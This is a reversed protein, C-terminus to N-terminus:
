SAAEETGFARRYAEGAELEKALVSLFLPKAPNPQRNGEAHDNTAADM